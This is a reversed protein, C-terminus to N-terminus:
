AALALECRIADWVAEETVGYERALDRPLDNAKFQEALVATPIGTGALVPRGFSVGPDIVVSRPQAPDPQAGTFPYLKIPLGRADREVRSLYARILDAMELQGHQSLNVIGGLREVFLETGRTAFQEELLPRESGFKDRLFRLAKRITPLSVNHRRRIASLVYAEILNNFSLALPQASAPRIVALFRRRQGGRTYPMGLFWARLTSPSVGLYRAAEAATYASLERRDAIRNFATMRRRALAALIHAPYV